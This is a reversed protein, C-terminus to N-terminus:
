SLPEFPFLFADSPLGTLVTLARLKDPKPIARGALYHRINGPTCGVVLAIADCTPAESFEAKLWRSFNTPRARRKAM